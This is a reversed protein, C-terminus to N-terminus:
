KWRSEMVLDEMADKEDEKGCITAYNYSDPHGRFVVRLGDLDYLRFFSRGFNDYMSDDGPMTMPTGEGVYMMSNKIAM